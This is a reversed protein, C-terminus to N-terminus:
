RILKAALKFAALVSRHDAQGTGALEFATGHDPSTRVLPLGLTVNVGTTFALLKFPILGQDHYACIVADYRGRAAHHFVTDPSHPGSVALGEAQLAEVAPTIIRAEEDGFLGGEGNHPNLGAVALRPSEVGQRQFFEAAARTTRQLRESTLRRIAQRLSCHTSALAVTLKRDTMMMVAEHAPRGCVHAFYETQGPYEFGVRRMGEKSIPGTVIAAVEGRQWAQVAQELGRLAQRASTRTPKGPVVRASRSKGLGDFIRFGVRKPLGRSRLAARVVEPGIGAPDGLTIGITPRAAM